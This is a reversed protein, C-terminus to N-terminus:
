WSFYNKKGHFITQTSNFYNGYQKNVELFQEHVM